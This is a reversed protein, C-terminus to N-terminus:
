YTLMSKLACSDTPRRVIRRWTCQWLKIKTSFLVQCVKKKAAMNEANKPLLFTSVGAGAGGAAAVVSAETSGRVATSANVADTSRSACDFAIAAARKRRPTSAASRASSKARRPATRATPASTLAAAAAPLRRGRSDPPTKSSASARPPARREAAARARSSQPATSSSMSPADGSAGITEAAGPASPGVNRPFSSSSNGCTSTGERLRAEAAGAGTGGGESSSASASSIESM